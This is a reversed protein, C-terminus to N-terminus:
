PLEETETRITVNMMDLVYGGESVVALRYEGAPAVIAFRGHNMGSVVISCLHGQRILVVRDVVSTADGPYSVSFVPYTEASVDRNRDTTDCVAYRDPADIRDIYPSEEIVVDRHSVDPGSIGIAFVASGILLAVGIAAGVAWGSREPM